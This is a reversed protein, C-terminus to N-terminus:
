FPPPGVDAPGRAGTSPPPTPPPLLRHQPETVRIQGTPGVWTVTGDPSLTYRWRGQQKLRHHRRCLGALNTPSTAGRPWPRTHDLDLHTASRTCGWMRCTGDRTSVFARVAKPPTYARSTTSVLTGTDAELMARTVDLPLTRLMGAVVTAPVFGVGPLDCGSVAAGSPLLAQATFRHDPALDDGQLEVWSLEERSAETLDAFRTEVGTVADIVTEDDDREVRVRRRGPGADGSAEQPDTTTHTVVPIGLTVQADVSVNELVLDTLADARAEAMTLGPDAERHRDALDDVAAAMAASTGTPLLAWWETLGDEAPRVQVTRGRRTREQQAAVQDAAVRTAAERAARAVRAPDMGALRPALASDVRACADVDLGTCADVVKHASAAPLDGALVLDRLRPFRSALAAGLAVKRGALGETLGTAASMEAPAMEDVFGVPHVRERWVPEHVTHEVRAGFAGSTMVLAEAANVLRQAQGALEFAEDPTMRHGAGVLERGLDACERRLRAVRATATIPDM